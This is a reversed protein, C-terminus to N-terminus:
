ALGPTPGCTRGVNTVARETFLLFASSSSSSSSSSSIIIILMEIISGSQFKGGRDLTQFARLFIQQLKYNPPIQGGIRIQM